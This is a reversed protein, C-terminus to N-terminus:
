TCRPYINTFLEGGEMMPTPPEPLAWIVLPLNGLEQVILAPINDRTFAGEVIVLADIVEAKFRKIVREADELTSILYPRGVLNKEPLLFISAIKDMVEKAKDVPFHSASTVILGVKIGNTGSM